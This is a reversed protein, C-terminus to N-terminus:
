SARRGTRPALALLQTVAVELAVEDRLEGRKVGGDAAALIEYARLVGARGLRRARQIAQDRLRPWPRRIAKGIEDASAGEALMEGVTVLPRYAAALQALLGNATEGRSRLFRVAQLAKATEGDLVADVLEWITAGREGGCLLDVDDVTAERGMTYLALKELERALELTNPHLAALLQAPDDERPRRWEEDAPLPRTSRGRRLAVGQREAEERVFAALEGRKLEPFEEVTAGAEELRGLLPNRKTLPGDVFVLATTDPAGAALGEVLPDFANARPARGSGRGPGSEFRELLGEVIVARRPALFPATFAPALIDDPKADRGDILTVDADDGRIDRLRRRLRLEDLGHLVTIM